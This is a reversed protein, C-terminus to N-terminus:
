QNSSRVSMRAKSGVDKDLVMDEDMDLVMDSVMGLEMGLEMHFDKSSFFAHDMGIPM